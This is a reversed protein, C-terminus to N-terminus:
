DFTKDRNNGRPRIQASELQQQSVVNAAESVNNESAKFCQANGLYLGTQSHKDVANSETHGRRVNQTFPFNHTKKKVLM